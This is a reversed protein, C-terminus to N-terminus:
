QAFKVSSVSPTARPIGAETVIPITNSATLTIAYAKGSNGHLQM